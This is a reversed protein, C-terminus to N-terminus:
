QWKAILSPVLAEFGKGEKRHAVKRMGRVLGDEMMATRDKRRLGRGYVITYDEIEEDEGVEIFTMIKACRGIIAGEAVKAQAEIISNEGIVVGAEILASTEIVVNRSLKIAGEGEGGVIAKEWIICGEGIDVPGESAIIKAYPHIVAGAGITIPYTGTLLAHNAIIATPHIKTPPKPPAPITSLRKSAPRTATTTSNSTRKSTTTTSQTESSM